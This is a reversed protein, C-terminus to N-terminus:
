NRKSAEIYLGLRITLQTQKLTLNSSVSLCLLSNRQTKSDTHRQVDRHEQVVIYCRKNVLQEIVVKKIYPFITYVLILLYCIDSHPFQEATGSSSFTSKAFRIRLLVSLCYCVSMRLQRKGKANKREGSMESFEPRCSFM